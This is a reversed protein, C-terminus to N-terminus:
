CLCLTEKMDKCIQALRPLASEVSCDLFVWVFEEGGYRCVIDSGRVSRLLLTGITRLVQDGAEHGFNDNFSKFHDIDLM